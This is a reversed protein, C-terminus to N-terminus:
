LHLDYNVRGGVYAWEHFLTGSIPSSLSNNGTGVYESVSVGAFLGVSLAPLIKYDIGAQPSIWEVGYLTQTEIDPPDAVMNTSLREYGFFGFGVWPQLVERGLFRYQVEAGVRIDSGSCSEGSVCISGGLAIGYSFYAGLYLYPNVLYGVDFWFPVQGSTFDSLAYTTHQSLVAANGLPSAWGLRFSVSIGNEVPAEPFFEVKSPGAATSTTAAGSTTAAVAAESPEVDALAGSAVFCFAARLGFLAFSRIM